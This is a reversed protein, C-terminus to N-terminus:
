DMSLLLYPINHLPLNSLTRPFFKLKLLPTPLQLFSVAPLLTYQKMEWCGSQFKMVMQLELNPFGTGERVVMSVSNMHMGVCLSVCM